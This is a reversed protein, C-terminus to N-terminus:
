KLGLHFGSSFECSVSVNPLLFMSSMIDSILIIKLKIEPYYYDFVVSFLRTLIWHQSSIILFYM